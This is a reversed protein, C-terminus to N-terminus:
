AEKKPLTMGAILDAGSGLINNVIVTHSAVPATLSLEKVAKALDMLIEKAVPKDTRVPMMRRGAGEIRVSSTFSRKPAFCENTAYELGRNCSNGTLRIDEPGTYEAEIRCGAPCITCTIVKKEM